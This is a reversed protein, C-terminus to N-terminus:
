TVNRSECPHGHCACIVCGKLVIDTVYTINTCPGGSLLAATKSRSFQVFLHFRMYQVTFRLISFPSPASFPAIWGLDSGDPGDPHRRVSAWIGWLQGFFKQQGEQTRLHLVVNGLADGGQGRLRAVIDATGEAAAGRPSRRPARPRCWCRGVRAGGSWSYAGDGGVVPAVVEGSFLTPALLRCVRLMAVM